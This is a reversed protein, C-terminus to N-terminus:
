GMQRSHNAICQSLVLLAIPLLTFGSVYETGFEAVGLLTNNRVDIGLVWGKRDMFKTTAMVYVVDEGNLSVNPESLVLNRLAVEVACREEDRSPKRHLLGSKQLQLRVENDINVGSAHVTFDQHWDECSGSIEANSEMRHHLHVLQRYRLGAM